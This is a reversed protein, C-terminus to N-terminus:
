EDPEFGTEESGCYEGRVKKKQKKLRSLWVEKNTGIWGVVEINSKFEPIFWSFEGDKSPFLVAEGEVSDLQTAVDRLYEWREERLVEEIIGITEMDTCNAVGVEGGLEMVVQSYNTNESRKVESVEEPDGKIFVLHHHRTGKFFLSEIGSM